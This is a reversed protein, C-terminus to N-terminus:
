NLREDRAFSPAELAKESVRGRRMYYRILEGSPTLKDALRMKGDLKFSIQLAASTEPVTSLNWNCWSIAYSDMFDMWREIEAPFLTGSGTSTSAGFETCFLPISELTRAINERAADKAADPYLHFVYMLNDDELPHAAALDPRSSWRPTGVLIVNRQDNERIVSVIREAYPRIESEWNVDDGNPENCIEYFVNKNNAFEKSMDDFFKEAAEVNELPNKDHLIHWDIIAYLGADTADRVAKKMTRALDPNILYGMEHRHTYMALRICDSSFDDRLERLFTPTIYMESRAIHQTSFGRLQVPNGRSDVLEKNRVSLQGHRAVPTPSCSILTFAAALVLVAFIRGKPFRRLGQVRKRGVANVATEIDYGPTM